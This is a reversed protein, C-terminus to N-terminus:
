VGLIFGEMAPSHATGEAGMNAGEGTTSGEVAPSGDAEAGM